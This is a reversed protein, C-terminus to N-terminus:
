QSSFGAQGQLLNIFYDRRAEKEQETLTGTPAPGRGSGREPKTNRNGTETGTETETETGTETEIKQKLKQKQKNHFDDNSLNSSNEQKWEEFSPPDTNVNKKRWERCFTAYQRAEVTASYKLMDRDLKQRINKWLTKMARDQFDPLAGNASYELMAILLQGAEAETYDQLIDLLDFYVVIGQQDTM